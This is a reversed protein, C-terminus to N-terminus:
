IGIYSSGFICFIAILTDFFNEWVEAEWFEEGNEAFYARKVLVSVRASAPYSLFGTEQTIHRQQTRGYSIPETRSFFCAFHMLNQQFSIPARAVECDRELAPSLWLPPARLKQLEGSCLLDCCVGGNANTSKSPIVIPPPSNALGGIAMVLLIVKWAQRNM